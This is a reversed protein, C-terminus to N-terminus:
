TGTGRLQCLRDAARRTLVEAPFSVDLEPLALRLGEDLMRAFAATRVTGPALYEEMFRAAGLTPWVNHGHGGPETVKAALLEAFRDHDVNSAAAIAPRLVNPEFSIERSVVLPGRHVFLGFDWMARAADDVPGPEVGPASPVRVPRRAAARSVADDFYYQRSPGHASDFAPPGFFGDHPVPGGTIERYRDTDRSSLHWALNTVRMDRVALLGNDILDQTDPAADLMDRVYKWAGVKEWPGHAAHRRLEAVVLARDRARQTFVLQHLPMLLEYMDNPPLGSQEDLFQYRGFDALLESSIRNDPPRRRWAPAM